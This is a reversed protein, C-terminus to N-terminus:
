SNHVLVGPPGVYFWQCDDSVRIDYVPTPEKLFVREVRIIRLPRGGIGEVMDGANLDCARVWGRDRTWYPHSPTSRLVTGSVEVDILERAYGTIGAALVRRSVVEGSDFSKSLIRDGPKVCEIPVAGQPTMVTTGAVFCIFREGRSRDPRFLKWILWGLGEDVPTNDTIVNGTNWGIWIGTCVVASRNLLRGIGLRWKYNAAMGAGAGAGATAMPPGNIVGELVDEIDDFISTLGTPDVRTLPGNGVYVYVNTGGFIGIPDRQIFRGSSPEYWRFGVHLFSLAPVDTNAGQLDALGSEYGWGGAYRYRTGLADPDGIPEGFATYALTAAPTGTEGTAMVTSDILDGHFYRTAGTAFTHQAATFFNSVTETPPLWTGQGDTRVEADAYPVVGISDSLGVPEILSWDAPNDSGSPDYDVALYRARMTGFLWEYRFERAWLGEYTQPDPDGQGDLKWRDWLALRPGSRTDYYMALDYVWEYDEPQGPTVGAHYEDKVGINSVHGGRFYTYSVTRLLREGGQGDPEYVKYELLRNNRTPFDMQEPELQIDYTYEVRRGSVNDVKLTRNGLQDYDYEIDYTQVTNVTRTERTLRDRCDYEFEVTATEQTTADFEIRTDLTNDLRWVYDIQYLVLEGPGKHYIHELRNAADYTAEVWAGNGYDIRTIRGAGDYALTASMDARMVKQPRGLLDYGPEENYTHATAEGGPGTVLVPGGDADYQDVATPRAAQAPDIATTALTPWGLNNYEILHSRVSEFDWTPPGEEAFYLGIGTLRGMADYTPSGGPQPGGGGPGAIGPGTFDIWPNPPFPSVLPPWTNPYGDGGGGATPNDNVDWNVECYLIPNPGGSSPGRPRGVADYLITYPSVPYGSSGDEFGERFKNRYGYRDYWFETTVANADIVKQLEGNARASDQGYYELTTVAQPSRTEPVAPEVMTTVLTPDNPDNPDNPDGYGYKVWHTLPDTVQTVRYFNPRETPYPQEWTVTWTQNPIPSTVTEVNGVPGYTATWTHSLEDIFTTPNRDSDYAYQRVYNLPDKTQRLTGPGDFGFKWVHERRDTYDTWWLPGWGEHFTFYQIAGDGPGEAAPDTVTQLRGYTSEYAYDWNVEDRNTIQEIRDEADYAFVTYTVPVTADNPYQIKELAYPADQYYHFTWKRGIPDEVYDLRNTEGDYSFELQHSGVSENTEAASAIRLIRFNNQESDRAVEVYNGSSDYVKILRRIDDGDVLAFIRKSQDPRILEWQSNTGDWKLLDHNGAEPDYVGGVFRFVYENGDDEIVTVMPNNPDDPIGVVAGGYSCSWGPGFSFGTPSTMEGGGAASASNHYLTFQVAPGVPDYGVLPVVTALNGNFLNVVSFPSVQIGAEWPRPLGAEPSTRVVPISGGGVQGEAESLVPGVAHLGVLTLGVL